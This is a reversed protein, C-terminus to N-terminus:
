LYLAHLQVSVELYLLDFLAEFPDLADNSSLPIILCSYPLTCYQNALSFQLVSLFTQGVAMKDVMASFSARWPLQVGHIHCLV